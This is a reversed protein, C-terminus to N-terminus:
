HAQSHSKWSVLDVLLAQSSLCKLRSHELFTVPLLLSCPILPIFSSALLDSPAGKLPRSSLNQNDVIPPFKFARHLQAWVQFSICHSSHPHFLDWCHYYKHVLISEFPRCFLLFFKIKSMHFKLLQWLGNSIYTLPWVSSNLAPVLSRLNGALLLPQLDSWM